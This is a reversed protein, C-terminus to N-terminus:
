FRVRAMAYLGETTRALHRLRPALKLDLKVPGGERVKAARSGRALPRPQRGPSLSASAMARLRGRGPVIAALRVAGTPLPSASLTFRWHKRTRIRRATPPIVLPGTASSGVSDDVVFADSADNGDAAALNSATSAFGIVAGDADLSPSSAGGGQL